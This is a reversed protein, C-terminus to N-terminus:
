AARSARPLVDPVGRAHQAAVGAEGDRRHQRQREADAADGDDVARQAVDQEVRERIHIRLPHDVDVHGVGLGALALVAARHSLVLGDVEELLLRREFSDDDAGGVAAGHAGGGSRVDDGDGLHRGFM